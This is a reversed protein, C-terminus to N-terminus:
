APDATGSYGSYGTATTPRTSPYSSGGYSGGYPVSSGDSQCDTYRAGSSRESYISPLRAAPQPTYGYPDRNPQTRDFYSPRRDPLTGYATSPSRDRTPGYATSPRRASESPYGATPPYMGENLLSGSMGSRSPTSDYLNSYGYGPVYGSPYGYGSM